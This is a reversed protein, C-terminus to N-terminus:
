QDGRKREAAEWQRARILAAQLTKILREVEEFTVDILAVSSRDQAVGISMQKGDVFVDVSPVADKDEQTGGSWYRELGPADFAVADSEFIVQEGEKGLMDGYWNPITTGYTSAIIDMDVERMLGDGLAEAVGVFTGHEQYYELYRRTAENMLKGM